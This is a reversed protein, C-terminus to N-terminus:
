IFVFFGVVTLFTTLLYFTLVTRRQSLGRKLFWHHIHSKDAQFPHKRRILRRVFALFTDVIPIGLAMVPYLISIKEIGDCCGKISLAALIFGLFLSGTDGMFIKAPYFNYRLFGITAGALSISACAVFADARTYTVISFLGLCVISVIGGALGDLGDILNIANTILVVFLITAPISLQGLDLVGFPSSISTIVMGFKVLIIASLIQATLKIPANAGKVDDYIGLCLILSGSIFIAGFDRLSSGFLGNESFFAIVMALLFGVYIALGGLKTVVKTHVKRRSKKDIVQFRLSGNRVIPTALFAIMFSLALLLSYIM